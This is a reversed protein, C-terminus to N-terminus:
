YAALVGMKRGYEMSRGFLWIAIPFVVVNFAALAAVAIWPSGGPLADGGPMLVQRLANLVYTNPIVYSLLELKDPLASVPFYVGSLISAAIVYLGIVPDGQKALVRISAALVSVAIGALTGLLLILAAMPLGAVRIDAVMLCAVTLVFSCIVLQLLIPWQIMALPLVRWRIPEILLMEFRGEQVARVLATGLGLLAATIFQTAIIGIVVFTFYDGGVSAGEVGVLRSVFLYIVVATTAQILTMALMMPYATALKFDMRLFAGAVRAMARARTM